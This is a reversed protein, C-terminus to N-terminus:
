VPLVRCSLTNDFFNLLLDNLKQFVILHHRFQNFPFNKQNLFKIAKQFFLIKQWLDITLRTGQALKKFELIFLENPMAKNLFTGYFTKYKFM